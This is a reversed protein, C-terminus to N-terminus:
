TWASASSCRRMGDTQSCAPVWEGDVLEQVTVPIGINHFTLAARPDDHTFDLPPKRPDTNAIIRYRGPTSM